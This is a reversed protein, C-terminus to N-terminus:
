KKLLSPSNLDLNAQPIVEVDAFKKKLAPLFASAQGAVILSPESTLYKGAFDSVEKSTVANVKPIFQNLRQLPLNYAALSSLRDAFGENTELSRGYAGTLLAKRSKLEEGSVPDTTLGKLEEIMLTAVEAASQNKTQASAVFPGIDRRADLQSSAGYSLGRKIRIERNLRSIFGRGLAANAVLGPFYDPSDRKIAPKSVMVMAQGAEPMDVVVNEPKWPQGAPSEPKVAAADAKWTGFFKEAYAKGQEFTLDGVLVLAANGPAYYKKYLSVIDNRQMAQVSEITGGVSHGYEGKGFVVREAVFTAVAGPQQLAVRLGDLRQKKLRDIEEQKFTPHEVVDALIALAAEAKGSLVVVSASSQDWDADSSIEGGLSEIASVIQPASMSETGKILLAGTMSATGPLNPPDIEAGNRVVLEATLLPLRPRETVIVRLGNELRAEKPQAFHTEPPASPPPPTNFGGIGFAPGTATALLLACLAFRSISLSRFYNQVFHKPTRFMGAGSEQVMRRLATNENRPKRDSMAQDQDGSAMGFRRSSADRELAERFPTLAPGFKTHPARM